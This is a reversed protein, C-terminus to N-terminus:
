HSSKKSRSILHGKEETQNLLPPKTKSVLVPSLATPLMVETRKLSHSLAEHRDPNKKNKKRGGGRFRTLLGCSFCTRYISSGSPFLSLYRYLVATYLCKKSIKPQFTSCFSKFCNRPLPTIRLLLLNMEFVNTTYLITDNNSSVSTLRTRYAVTKWCHLFSIDCNNRM